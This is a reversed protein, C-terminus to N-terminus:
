LWCRLWCYRNTTKAQGVGYGGPLPKEYIQYEPVKKGIPNQPPISIPHAVIHIMFKMIPSDALLIFAIFSHMRM